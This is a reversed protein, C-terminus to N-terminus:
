LARSENLARTICQLDIPARMVVAEIKPILVILARNIRQLDIQEDHFAWLIHMITPKTITWAAAYFGPGVDDPGPASDPWM